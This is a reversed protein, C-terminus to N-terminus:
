AVVQQVWLFFGEAMPSPLQKKHVFALKQQAVFYLAEDFGEKRLLDRAQAAEAYRRAPEAFDAVCLAQGLRCLGPKGTTHWYIAEYIAPDEIGLERRCVEAALPGHLLNPHARQEESIPLGYAGARSLMTANDLTRCLDHLLGATVAQDHDLGITGAFSALYEAVFISHSVKAPALDRRLVHVFEKYRPTDVIPM